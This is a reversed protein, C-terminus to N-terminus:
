TLMPLMQQLMALLKINKNAVGLLKHFHRFFTVCWHTSWLCGYHLTIKLNGTNPWWPEQSLTCHDNYSWGFKGRTLIRSRWFNAQKCFLFYEHVLSVSSTNSWVQPNSNINLWNQTLRGLNTKTRTGGWTWPSPDHSDPQTPLNSM